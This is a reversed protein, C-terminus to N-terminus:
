TVAAITEEHANECLLWPVVKGGDLKMVGENTATMEATEDLLM